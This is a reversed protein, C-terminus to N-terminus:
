TFKQFAPHGQAGVCGEQHRDGVSVDTVLHWIARIGNTGWIDGWVLHQFRAAHGEPLLLAAAPEKRRGPVPFSPHLPDPDLLGPM